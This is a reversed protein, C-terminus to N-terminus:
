GRVDSKREGEGDPVQGLTYTFGGDASFARSNRRNQWCPSGNLASRDIWEAPDRTLPTLAEHDLLRLCLNLRRAQTEGPHSWSTFAAIAAVVSASFGPDEGARSLHERAHAVPDPRHAAALKAFLPVAVSMSGGSHGWSMFSAIAAVISTASGPDEGIRGLEERAHSALGVPEDAAWPGPDGGPVQGPAVLPWYRGVERRDRAKDDESLDAYPAAIQREWAAVRDAPLVLAGDEGLTGLSHVHRQWDAWRQHEIEALKEM